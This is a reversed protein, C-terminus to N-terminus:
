GKGSPNLHLADLTLSKDPCIEAYSFINLNLTLGIHIYTYIYIYIYIYIYMYIYIYIHIYICIYIDIYMHIYVYTNRPRVQSTAVGMSVSCRYINIYISMWIYM